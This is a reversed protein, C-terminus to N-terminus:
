ANSQGVKINWQVLTGSLSQKFEHAEEYEQDRDHYNIYMGKGSLVWLEGDPNAKILQRYSESGQGHKEEERRNEGAQMALKIRRSDKRIARLTDISYIKRIWSKPRLISKPIGVGNDYISIYLQGEDTVNCLAWWTKENDPCDPYAHNFVNNFAESIADGMIWQDNAPMKGNYIKADVYRIIDDHRAASDSIVPILNKSDFDVEVDENRLLSIIGSWDMQNRTFQHKPLKHIRLKHSGYQRKLLEFKAFLYVLVPASIDNLDSFDLLVRNRKLSNAVRSVFNLCMRHVTDSILELTPPSCIVESNGIRWSPIIPTEDNSRTERYRIRLRRRERNRAIRKQRIRDEPKLKKM